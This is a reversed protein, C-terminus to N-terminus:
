AVTSYRTEKIGEGGDMWLRALVGTGRVQQTKSGCMLTHPQSLCAEDTVHNVLSWLSWM